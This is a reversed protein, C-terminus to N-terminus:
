GISDYLMDLLTGLLPAGGWGRLGMRGKRGLVWAGGEALRQPTTKIPKYPPPPAATNSASLSYYGPLKSRSGLSLPLWLIQANLTFHSLPSSTNHEQCSKAGEGFGLLQVSVCANAPRVTFSRSCLPQLTQADIQVRMGVWSGFRKGRCSAKSAFNSM